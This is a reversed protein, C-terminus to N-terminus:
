VDEDEWELEIKRGTKTNVISSINDNDDRNIKYETEKGNLDEAITVGDAKFTVKKLKSKVIDSIDDVEEQLKELDNYISTGLNDIRIRLNEVEAEGLNDIKEEIMFIENNIDKTLNALIQKLELKSVPEYFNFWGDKEGQLLKNYTESSVNAETWVFRKFIKDEIVTTEGNGIYRGVITIKNAM